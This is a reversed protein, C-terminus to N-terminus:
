EDRQAPLLPRLMAVHCAFFCILALLLPARFFAWTNGYLLQVANESRPETLLLLFIAAVVGIVARHHATLIIDPYRPAPTGSRRLRAFFSRSWAPWYRRAITMCSLTVIACAVMLHRYALVRSVMDPPQSSRPDPLFFLVSEVTGGTFQM